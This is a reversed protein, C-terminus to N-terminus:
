QTILEIGTSNMAAEMGGSETGSDRGRRRGDLWSARPLGGRPNRGGGGWQFGNHLHSGYAFSDPWLWDGPQWVGFGLHFLLFLGFRRQLGFFKGNWIEYKLNRNEPEPNATFGGTVDDAGGVGSALSIWIMGMRRTWVFNNRLEVWGFRIIFRRHDSRRISARNPRSVALAMKHRRSFIRRFFTSLPWAAPRVQISPTPSPMPPWKWNKRSPLPPRPSAPRRPNTAPTTPEAELRQPRPRRWRRRRRWWSATTWAVQDILEDTVRFLTWDDWDPGFALPMWWHTTLWDVLPWSNRWNLELHKPNEIRNRSSIIITATRTSLWENTRNLRSSLTQIFRAAALHRPRRVSLRGRKMEVTWRRITASCGCDLNWGCSFEGQTWKRSSKKM